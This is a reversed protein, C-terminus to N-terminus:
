SLSLLLMNQASPALISFNVVKMKINWETKDTSALVTASLARAGPERACHHEREREKLCSRSHAQAQARMQAQARPCHKHELATSTSVPLSM